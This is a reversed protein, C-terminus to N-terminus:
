CIVRASSVSEPRVRNTDARTTQAPLPLLCRWTSTFPKGTNDIGPGKMLRGPVRITLLTSSKAGHVLVRKGMQYLVLPFSGTATYVNGARLRVTERTTTPPYCTPCTRTVTWTGLLHSIGMRPSGATARGGFGVACVALVLTAAMTLRRFSSRRRVKPTSM